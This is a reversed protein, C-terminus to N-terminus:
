LAGHARRCQLLAALQQLASQAERAWAPPSSTPSAPPVRAAPAPAPAAGMPLGEAWLGSHQKAKEQAFYEAFRAAVDPKARLLLLTQRELPTVLAPMGRQEGAAGAPSAGAPRGAPAGFYDALRAVVLPHQRLMCLVQLELLSVKLAESASGSPAAPAAPAAAAKQVVQEGEQQDSSARVVRHFASAGAGVRRPGTPTPPQLPHAPVPHEEKLWVYAHAQQPAAALMAEHQQVQLQPCAQVSPQQMKQVAAQQNQQARAAQQTQQPATQALLPRQRWCMGLLCARIDAIPAPQLQGGDYASGPPDEAEVQSSGSSSTTSSTSARRQLRQSQAAHWALQKACALSGLLGETYIRVVAAASALLLCTEGFHPSLLLQEEASLQKVLWGAAGVLLQGRQQLAPPIGLLPHLMGFCDLTACLTPLLPYCAAPAKGCTQPLSALLQASLPVPLMPEQQRQQQHSGQPQERVQQDVTPQRLLVSWQQWSQQCNSLVAAAAATIPVTPRTRKLPPPEAAPAAPAGRKTAPSLPGEPSQKPGRDSIMARDLPRLAQKHATRAGHEPRNCSTDSLLVSFRLVSRCLTSPRNGAWPVRSHQSM